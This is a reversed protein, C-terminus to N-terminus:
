YALVVAGDHQQTGTLNNYYYTGYGGITTKKASSKSFSSSSELQSATAEVQARLVELRKQQQKILDRM